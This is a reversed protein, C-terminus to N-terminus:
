ALKGALAAHYLREFAAADMPIPNTGTSPDDVSAAAMSAVDDPTVGTAALTHPIGTETRLDLVWALFADFSPKLGM